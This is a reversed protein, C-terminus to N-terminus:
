SGGYFVSDPVCQGAVPHQGPPCAGTPTVAEGTVSAGPLAPVAAATSGGRRPTPFPLYQLNSMAADLFMSGMGPADFRPPTTLSLLINEPTKINKNANAPDSPDPFAMKFRDALNHERWLQTLMANRMLYRPDSYRADYARRAEDKKRRGGLLHQGAAIAFPLLALPNM